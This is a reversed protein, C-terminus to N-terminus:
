CGGPNGRRFLTLKVLLYILIQLLLLPTFHPSSSKEAFISFTVGYFKWNEFSALLNIIVNRGTAFFCKRTTSPPLPPRPINHTVSKTCDIYFLCWNKTNACAVLEVSLAVTPLDWHITMTTLRASTNCTVIKLKFHM